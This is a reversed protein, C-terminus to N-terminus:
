DKRGKKTLMLAVAIGVPVIAAWFLYDSQAGTLDGAFAFHGLVYILGSLALAWGMSTRTLAEYLCVGVIITAAWGFGTNANHSLGASSVICQCVVALVVLVTLSRGTDKPSWGHEGLFRTISFQQLIAEM